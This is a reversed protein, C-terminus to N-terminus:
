INTILKQMDIFPIVYEGGGARIGMECMLLLDIDTLLELKAETKKGNEGEVKLSSAM